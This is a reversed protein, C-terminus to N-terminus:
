ERGYYAISTPQLAKLANHIARSGNVEAYRNVLEKLKDYFPRFNVPEDAIGRPKIFTKFEEPREFFAAYSQDADGIKAPSVAPDAYLVLGAIDDDENNGTSVTISNLLRFSRQSPDGPSYRDYILRKVIAKAKKELNNTLTGDEYRLKIEEHLETGMVLDMFMSLDIINPSDIVIQCSTSDEM